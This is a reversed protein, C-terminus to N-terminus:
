FECEKYEKEGCAGQVNQLSPLGDSYNPVQVSVRWVYKSLLIKICVIFTELLM